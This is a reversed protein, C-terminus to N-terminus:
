GGIGFVVSGHVREVIGRGIACAAESECLSECAGEGHLYGALVARRHREQRRWGHGFLGDQAGAHHYM